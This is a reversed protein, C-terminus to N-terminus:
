KETPLTCDVWTENANFSPRDLNFSSPFNFFIMSDNGSNTDRRVSLQPPLEVLSIPAVPFTTIQTIQSFLCPKGIHWPGIGECLVFIILPSHTLHNELETFIWCDNIQSIQKRLKLMEKSKVSQSPGKSQYWWEKQCTIYRGAQSPESKKQTHVTWTTHIHQVCMLTHIHWRQMYMHNGSCSMSHKGRSSVKTGQYLTEQHAPLKNKWSPQNAALSEPNAGAEWYLTVPVHM